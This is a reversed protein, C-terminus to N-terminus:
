VIAELLARRSVGRVRVVKRRGRHGAQLRVDARRVGLVKAVFQMVAQNAEGSVPPSTVSVKIRDGALPGFRCRSARPTVLIQFALTDDDEDVICGQPPDPV